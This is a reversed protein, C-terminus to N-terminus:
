YVKEGDLLSDAFRGPLEAVSAGSLISERNAYLTGVTLLLWSKVSAPVAAQQAAENGAGYGATYNIWVSRADAKADPWKQGAALVVSDGVLSYVAEDLTQTAGDPDIYHVSEVSLITPWPLQMEDEFGDVLLKWEQKMLSRGTLQQCLNVAAGILMPIMADENNGDIRLHLKAEALTVPLFAPLTIQTVTM